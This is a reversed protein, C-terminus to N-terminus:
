SRCPSPLYQAPVTSPIYVAANGGGSTGLPQLGAPESAMGCRWIVGNEATEYPTLTMTQGAIAAHARNGFTVIIVGNSVDLATVYTGVTDNPNATLGATARDVPAEGRDLFSSVIPAKAPATMNVGETVQARITYSQYVPIAMSALIGIIAVVIMLEILTFGPALASRNCSRTMRTASLATM